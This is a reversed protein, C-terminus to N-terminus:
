PAKGSISDPLTLGLDRLSSLLSGVLAALVGIWVVDAVQDLDLGVISINQPFLAAVHLAAWVLVKLLDNRVFNAIYTLRFTGLKFAAGVGLLFDLAILILATQLETDFGPM